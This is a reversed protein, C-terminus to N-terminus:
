IHKVQMKLVYNKKNSM